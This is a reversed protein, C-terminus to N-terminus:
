GHRQTATLSGGWANGANGAAAREAPTPAGRYSRDTVVGNQVVITVAGSRLGHLAGRIQALASDTVDDVSDRLGHGYGAHIDSM